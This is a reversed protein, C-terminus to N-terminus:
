DCERPRQKCYPTDGPMLRRNDAVCDYAQEQLWRVVPLSYIRYPVYIGLAASIALNIAAAGRYLIPHSDPQLLAAWAAKCCDETSLGFAEPVGRKQYPVATVRRDRGLAGILRVSRTLFGRDGDFILTLPRSM